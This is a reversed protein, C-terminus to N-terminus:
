KICYVINELKILTGKNEVRKSNEGTTKVSVETKHFVENEFFKHRCKRWKYCAFVIESNSAQRSKMKRKM